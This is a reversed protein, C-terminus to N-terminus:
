DLTPNTYCNFQALTISSIAATEARLINGHIKLPRFGAESSKAVELETFGGEPGILLTVKDNTNHPLDKFSETATPDLLVRLGQSQAIFAPFACIPNLKPLFNCGSQECAGIITKQWHALRKITQIENLRGQSREAQIPTIERVGLEVAKQITLDMMENRILSMALHIAAGSPTATQSYNLIEIHVAKKTIENIQATALNGQGDFLDLTDGPHLRLVRVHQAQAEPLTTTFQEIYIRPM